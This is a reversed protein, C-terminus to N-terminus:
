SAQRAPELEAVPADFILVDDAIPAQRLLQRDRKYNQANIWPERDGQRPFRHMMRQMYNASFDDIFPRAVMNSDQERLQATCQRAGIATMHNLLRCTYQAVLDARLTWSANIYGFTFILNPVGSFMLAKYAWTNAFDVAEGDVSFKVDGMVVLELGTATVIIDAALEEGSKLQVGNETFGDIHDTVMQLSGDRIAQFLDSNPVLCLRQDWPKYVPTFHKEVDYDPGLERRIRALLKQKLQEPRTRSRRYIFQQFAVNKWRTLQYAWTAPLVRKLANAIIDHDPMSVVWTPSRQLLTVQAAQRAMNPALTMATAGSGIILVRKNAYDLDEPWHQPHVIPGNFRERGPFEPEHGQAYNYYGACMLLFNCRLKQPAEQEPVAVQLTWCAQESCWDAQLLRHQYRIHRDIQNDTAVATIYRLISPGDAIAKAQRWPRFHYGLTHMDSDSRIGPYRFLDWTGGLSERSELILYSKDPCHQQLHWAAGIGSLGAGVIVVDRYETSENHM